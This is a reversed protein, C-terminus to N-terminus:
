FIFKILKISVISIFFQKTKYSVFVDREHVYGQSKESINQNKIFIVFSFSFAYM